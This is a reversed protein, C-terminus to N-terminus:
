PQSRILEKTRKHRYEFIEQIQSRIALTHAIEGLFGLPLEYELEDRLLTGAITTGHPGPTPDHTIHHCHHWYAFPGRLQTDCFHDNWAFQDIEAKWRARLPLFSIPRFSLTIRTGAGALQGAHSTGNVPPTKITAKVVRAKQGPPMLLPLNDPNGFFAFVQEVPYPLWQETCFHHRM